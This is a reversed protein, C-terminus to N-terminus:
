PKMLPLTRKKGDPVRKTTFKKPKEPAPPKFSTKKKLIYTSPNMAEETQARIAEADDLINNFDVVVKIQDLKDQLMHAGVSQGRGTSKAENEEFEKLKAQQMMMSSLNNCYAHVLTLTPTQWGANGQESLNVCPFAAGRFPRFIHSKRDDWWKIFVELGPVKQAMLDMHSKLIKYKAVTTASCLEECMKKFTDKLEEPLGAERKKAQNKFHWQCGKMRNNAVEEGFVNRIANYNTGSEDCLFTRPNFKYEANNSEKQLIENFLQFFITIDDTNESRVRNVCNHTMNFYANENQFIHSPGNIDMQIALQAM